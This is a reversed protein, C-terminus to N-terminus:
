PLVSSDTRRRLLMWIEEPVARLLILAICYLTLAAVAALASPLGSLWGLLAAPAAALAVKGIIGAKPRLEPARRVLYVLYGSALTLEGALTAAAAGRAGYSSALGLTLGCSATLALANTVILGRHERLSFLALGWTALTFSVALAVGQIRLASAAAAYSPGAVVAIIASAGLVLGLAAGAGLIVSVEFLREVAYALRERDDRAARALVPFATGVLLGPIFVLVIFVRFSVAFLGNQYGSAVISTLVQATYVYVTGVAMAMAFAVTSRVLTLWGRLHLSPLFPMQGRVRQITLLTVLVNVPLAIALFPLVPAGVLVLTVILAVTLAQRAFDLATMWGLQLTAALPIAFMTQVVAAVLGMCAIATGILLAPQYGAALAFAFAFLSGGTTLALRLGLLDRMLRDREKGETVAFERTGLGGMGADTISGIVTVLSLVTTYHGYQEVGLHRTLLSIGAVSLVLGAIYGAFRLTGGRVIMGGAASSDLIDIPESPELAERADTASLKTM